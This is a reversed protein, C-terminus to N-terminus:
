DAPEILDPGENAPANVRRSVPHATLLGDPAPGLLHSLATTETLTPDLWPAQADPALIVPMREHIPAVTSNAGTTLITCSDVVRDPGLWQEWLGALALPNGDRGHIYFPRKGGGADSWEYFGDAPILCRRRAFPGRFAPREHATEARANIMRFDPKEGKAWPPILGWTLLTLTRKGDADARVAAVPQSPTINYRPSLEVGPFPGFRDSLQNAPTHLVFRGCM